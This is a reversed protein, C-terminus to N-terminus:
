FLYLILLLWACMIGVSPTLSSSVAKMISKDWAISAELMHLGMSLQAATQSKAVADRWTMLGKPITDLENSTSGSLSVDVPTM